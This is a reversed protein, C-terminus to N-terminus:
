QGVVAEGERLGDLIEVYLDGRLGLRVTRSQLANGTWVQLTQTDQAGARVVARPLRLVDARRDLIIAADATMGPALGLRAEDPLDVLHITIPYLPHDGAMREPILRLVEGSVTLDPLADFFVEAPQGPRLLPYAEETVSASIELQGPTWLVVLVQGTAVWEGPRASVELVIGDQPAYITLSALAAQAQQQGARAEALRAQALALQDEDVGDKVREWAQQAAALEARAVALRAEAQAQEQPDAPGQRGQVAARAQDLGQQAGLFELLAAARRPDDDALHAVEDFRKAAQRAAAQALTYEAAARETAAPYTDNAQLAAARRQAEALEGQAVVLRQYAQATVLPAQDLLAQRAQSAELVQRGATAVAAALQAQGGLRALSQGKRVPDGPGADVEVLVGSLTSALELRGDGVLQGPATITRSVEGRSVTVTPPQTPRAQARSVVVQRGAFLLAALGLGLGLLFIVKGRKMRSKM